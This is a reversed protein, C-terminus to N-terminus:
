KIQRWNHFVVWLNFGSVICVFWEAWNPLAPNAVYIATAVLILFIKTATLWAWRGSFGFRVLVDRIRLMFPNVERGGQSIVKYTTWWDGFQAAIIVLLSIQLITM